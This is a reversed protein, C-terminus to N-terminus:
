PSKNAGAGLFNNQRRGMPDLGTARVEALAPAAVILVAAILVLKLDFLRHQALGQQASRLNLPLLADLNVGRRRPIVAVAGPHFQLGLGEGDAVVAKARM